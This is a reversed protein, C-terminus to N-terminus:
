CRNEAVGEIARKLGNMITPWTYNEQVYRIANRSMLSVAEQNQMFYNVEAEFELYNCYYLGANSRECHGKLVACKGNVLVPTGVSMAELVVISLSEFESSQVLAMAGSMASFKETNSVFGIYHIDPHEPIPLEQKGILVLKLDSKNRWKYELFDRLLKKCGKAVDIRGAYLLYPSEGLDYTKRFAHEDVGNPIEIGVGGRGDGRQVNEVNFREEVFHKEEVTLFYLGAVSEFVTDYVPQYICFEDHATPIMLCKKGFARAAMVTPYYLYTMLVVAYYDDLHNGLYATLDPCYPGQAEVWEIGDKVTGKEGFARQQLEGTICRNRLAPFRRVQVGNIMESERDYENEWTVYSKARSTLVDVQYFNTLKEAIQRCYDESGGTIGEGYRQVVFCIRKM